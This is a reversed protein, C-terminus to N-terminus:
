FEIWDNINFKILPSEVGGYAVPAGLYVWSCFRLEDINEGDGDGDVGDFKM